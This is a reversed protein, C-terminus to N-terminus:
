LALLIYNRAHESLIGEPWFMHTMSITALPLAFALAVMLDRFGEDLEKKRAIKEALVGEVELVTYGSREVAAKLEPPSAASSDYEGAAKGLAFNVRADVVGPVEKLADQVALACTACHMGGITMTLEDKAVEYGASRVASEIRDMSARRPDHKLFAKETALNVRVDYVGELESLSQRVADTCTACHMGKIRVTAERRGKDKDLRTNRRVPGSGIVAHRRKDTAGTRESQHTRRTTVGAPSRGRDM